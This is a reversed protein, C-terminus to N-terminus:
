AMRAAAEALMQRIPLGYPCKEECEGCELCADAKVAMNRYRGTAWDKLDYRTYYGDLIFIAPIDIGQRCPQCYECRRCFVSGTKKVEKDLISKEEVSLPLHSDGLRANSEVQSIEDMGPIVTSVPYQLIFRLALEINQFAGGALPKMTILGINAKLAFDVLSLVENCEIPNFPFMVTEFEGTKLAEVLLDKLHGTVGIHKVLGDKKAEHLAALAGGPNLIQGLSAEDRINHVQYLDIYDVKLNELSKAIDAAMGERTRAMSKTAIIVEKRKKPLVLGLKTESDTYGRATDFFNIGLNMAKNVIAKAKEEEVRQIPIGGFGIVSM